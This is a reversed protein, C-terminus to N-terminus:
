FFIKKLFLVKKNKLISLQFKWFRNSFSNRSVECLKLENLQNLCNNTVNKRPHRISNFNQSTERFEKEFLHQFNWSEIKLFLFTKNRFLSLGLYNWCIASAPRIKLSPKSFVKQKKWPFETEMVLVTTM